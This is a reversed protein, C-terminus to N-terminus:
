LGWRPTEPNRRHMMIIEELIEKGNCYTRKRLIRVHTEPVSVLLVDGEDIQRGVTMRLREMAEEGPRKVAGDIVIFKM